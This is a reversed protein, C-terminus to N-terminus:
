GPLWIRTHSCQCCTPLAGTSDSYSSYARPLTIHSMFALFNVRRASLHMRFCFFKIAVILFRIAGALSLRAPYLSANDSSGTSARCHPRHPTACQLDRYGLRLVHRPETGLAVTDARSNAQAQFPSSRMAIKRQHLLPPPHALKGALKKRTTHLDSRAIMLLRDADRPFQDRVRRNWRDKFRCEFVLHKQRTSIKCRRRSPRQRRISTLDDAEM